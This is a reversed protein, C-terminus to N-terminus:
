LNAQDQGNLWVIWYFSTCLAGRPMWDPEGKGVMAAIYDGGSQRAVMMVGAHNIMDAPSTGQMSGRATALAVATCPSITTERVLPVFFAVVCVVVGVTGVINGIMNCFRNFARQM